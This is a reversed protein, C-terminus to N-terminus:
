ELLKALYAWIRVVNRMWTRIWLEDDIYTKNAIETRREKQRFVCRRRIQRQSERRATQRRTAEKQCSKGGAAYADLEDVENHSFNTCELTLLILLGTLTTVTRGCGHHRHSLHMKLKQRQCSFERNSSITLQTSSDRRREYHVGSARLTKVPAWLPSNVSQFPRANLKSVM